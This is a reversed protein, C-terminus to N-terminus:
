TKSAILRTIVTGNHSVTRVYLVTAYARESADSFGLIEKIVPSFGKSFYCRPIRVHNLIDFETTAYARESADSIRSSLALDKVLTAGHSEFM